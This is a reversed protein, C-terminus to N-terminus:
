LTGQLRLTWTDMALNTPMGRADLGLQNRNVDYQFLLRAHVPVGLSDPLTLGVLPSYTRITQALPLLEGGQLSTNDSSSPDYQDYRFGAVGYGFVEQTLGLSFGVERLDHYPYLLPDAIFLGRDMNNAVVVEFTLRTTGLMSRAEARLDGGVAWRGFAM